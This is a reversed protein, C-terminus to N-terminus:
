GPVQACCPGGGGGSTSGIWRPRPGHSQLLAQVRQWIAPDVTALHAGTHVEDKYRVQGVYAANTL